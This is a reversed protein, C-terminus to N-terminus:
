IEKTIHNTRLCFYFKFCEKSYIHHFFCIAREYNPEHRREQELRVSEWGKWRHRRMERLPVSVSLCPLPVSLRNLDGCINEIIFGYILKLWLCPDTKQDMHEWCVFNWLSLAFYWARIGLLGKWYLHNQFSLIKLPPWFMGTYAFSCYISM